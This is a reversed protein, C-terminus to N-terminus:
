VVLYLYILSGSLLFGLSIDILCWNLMKTDSQHGISISRLAKAIRLTHEVQCVHLLVGFCWAKVRYKNLPRQFHLAFIIYVTAQFPHDIGVQNRSWSDTIWEREELIGYHWPINLLRLLGDWKMVCVFGEQFTFCSVDRPVCSWPPNGPNNHM